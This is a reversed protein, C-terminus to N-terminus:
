ETYGFMPDTLNSNEGSCSEEVGEMTYRKYDPYILGLAGFTKDVSFIPKLPFVITYVPSGSKPHNVHMDELWFLYRYGLDYGPDTIYSVAVCPFRREAADKKIESIVAKRYVYGSKNVTIFLIRNLSIFVFASLLIVGLLRYRKKRIISSFSITLISIWVVVMGNLYYESVTKTYISFFLIYLSVWATFLVALKRSIIKRYVLAFFLIILLILAAGIPLESIPGWLLGAVNRSLLLLVRELKKVGVWIDEQNTTLSVILARTQLLNHRVEFLILPLSTIFLSLAGFLISKIVVKKRSLWQALPILFIFLVLAFNLHWILGILVGLLIYGFKQKNSIILNLAYFFWVSWLLVPMTPVVERDNFVTYFSVAYILAAIIGTKRDFVRLFVFYFSWITFLGLVIVMAVGGMPSMNFLLYFPILLYYYFSGIFIGHTSTEQGILRLHKNELVDRIFWASLDQDHSYLFLEQAKYVRLFLGLVLILILIIHPQKLYNQIKGAGSRKALGPFKFKANQM